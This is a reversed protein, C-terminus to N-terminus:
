RQRRRGILIGNGLAFPRGYSVNERASPPRTEWRGLRSTKVALAVSDFPGDVFAREFARHYGVPITVLLAGGIRDITELALAAKDPDSPVEDWGVHELTSLSVVLGYRREPVFGVIDVNLIGPGREYKDLVTHGAFGALSLVNGVELVDDRAFGELAQAGLAIELGRESRWAWRRFGYHLRVPEGALDVSRRPGCWVLPLAAVDLAANRLRDAQSIRAVPPLIEVGPAPSIRSSRYAV